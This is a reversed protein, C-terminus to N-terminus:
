AYSPVDNVLTAVIAHGLTPHKFAQGQYNMQIGGPGSVPKSPVPVKVALYQIELSHPGRAWRYSPQLTQKAKAANYLTLDKYRVTFQPSGSVKGPDAGDIRGDPRINEAVDLNNSWAATGSVIEGLPVGRDTIEGSGQSFREIAYVTPTGAQSTTTPPLEGQAILGLQINLNGSRQLQISATNAMIGYNMHYAPIEPHGIEVVADPLTQAGSTFVHNYPGTAAGGALTAGSVTAVSAALAFANGATGITKHTVNIKTGDRDATYRAAAVAVVGSANLAWVAERVTDALTAGILIQNGVPNASKFTFVQGGVTITDNNAPNAAFTIAGSAAVGQTTVPPGFLWKLALGVNRVDVPLTMTATNTVPGDGPELPERGQGILDDEILENRDSLDGLDAGAISFFGTTPITGYSSAFALAAQANAGRARAM